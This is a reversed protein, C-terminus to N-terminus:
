GLVVTLAASLLVAAVGTNIAIRQLRAGHRDMAVVADHVESTATAVTETAAGIRDTAQAMEHLLREQRLLSNTASALLGALVGVFIGAVWQPAPRDLRESVTPMGGM